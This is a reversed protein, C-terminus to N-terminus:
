PEALGAPDGRGVEGGAQLRSRNSPAPSTCVGTSPAAAGHGACRRGRRSGARSPPRATRASRSGGGRTRRGPRPRPASRGRRPSCRGTADPARGRGGAIRAVIEPPAKEPSGADFPPQPDYEIASSSRRRSRTAPADEALVCRWTSARRCARRRHDGQGARRGAARHADRWARGADRARALPDDGRLGDLIAPPASCCRAPASRRRGPAPARTRERMWNLAREDTMADRTGCGGPVCLIEPDPLDELPAEALIAADRQRDQLAGAEEASSLTVRSDPLARAAGRLARGRRSRHLRDYLPIAIEM